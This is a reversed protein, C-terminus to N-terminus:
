SLLDKLTFVPTDRCSKSMLVLLILAVHGVPKFNANESLFNLCCDSFTFRQGRRMYLRIWWTFNQCEMAVLQLIIAALVCISCTLSSSNLRLPMFGM